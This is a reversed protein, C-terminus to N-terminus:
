VRHCDGEANGLERCAAMSQISYKRLDLRKYWYLLM